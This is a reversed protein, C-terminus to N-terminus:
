IFHGQIAKWSSPVLKYDWCYVFIGKNEAKEGTNYMALRTPLISYSIKKIQNEIIENSTFNFM